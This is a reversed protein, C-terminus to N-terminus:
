QTGDVNIPNIIDGNITAVGKGGSSTGDYTMINNGVITYIGKGGSSTGDYTMIHNQANVAGFTLLITAM